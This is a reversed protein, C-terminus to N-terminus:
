SSTTQFKGKFFYMHGNGWRMAADLSSPIGEFEDKILRPYGPMIVDEVDYKWCYEEKFFYVSNGDGLMAADLNGELEQWRNKIFQAAGVLRYNVIKWYHRGKFAFTEGNLDLVADVSSDVCIDKEENNSTTTTTRPLITTAEPAAPRSSPPKPLRKNGYLYQIATIDDRDLQVYNASKYNPWM